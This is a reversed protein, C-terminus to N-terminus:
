RTLELLRPDTRLSDWCEDQFPWSKVTSDIRIAHRLDSLAEEFRGAVANDCGRHWWAILFDPRLRLASDFAAQAEQHRMLRGLTAGRAQWTAASARDWQLAHDFMVLASDLRGPEYEAVGQDFYLGAIAVSDARTPPAGRVGEPFAVATVILLL